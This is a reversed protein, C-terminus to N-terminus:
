RPDYRSGALGHDDLWRVLSERADQEAVIAGASRQRSRATEWAAHLLSATAEATRPTLADTM